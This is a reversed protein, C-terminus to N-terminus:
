NNQAAVHTDRMIVVEDPHVMGLQRRAEEDVMDQDLAGTRLLKVRLELEMRSAQLADLQEQLQATRSALLAQGSLGYEGQFAHYGFYAVVVASLGPLLFRRSNTSRYQRTTM